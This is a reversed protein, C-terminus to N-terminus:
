IHCYVGLKLFTHTLTESWLGSSGPRDSIPCNSNITSRRPVGLSAIHGSYEERGARVLKVSLCCGYLLRLCRKGQSVGAPSRNSLKRKM